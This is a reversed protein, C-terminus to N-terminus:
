EFTYAKSNYETVISELYTQDTLELYDQLLSPSLYMNVSPSYAATDNADPAPNLNIMFYPKNDLYEYNTFFPATTNRVPSLLGWAVSVSGKIFANKKSPERVPLNDAEYLALYEEASVKILDRTKKDLVLAIENAFIRFYLEVTNTRPVLYARIEVPKIGGANSHTLAMLNELQIPNFDGLFNVDKEEPVSTVCSVASLICLSLLVCLLIKYNKKLM